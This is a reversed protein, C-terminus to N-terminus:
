AGQGLAPSSDSARSKDLRGRADMESRDEDAFNGRPTVTRRSSPMDEALDDKSAYNSTIANSFTRESKPHKEEEHDHADGHTGHTKAHKPEEEDRIAPTTELAKHADAMEKASMRGAFYGKGDQEKTQVLLGATRVASIASKDRGDVVQKIADKDGEKVKAALDMIIEADQEPVGLKVLGEQTKGALHQVNSTVFDYMGDHAEKRLAPIAKSKIGYATLIENPLLSAFMAKEKGHMHKLNDQIANEIDGPNDFKALFEEPTIMERTGLVPILPKLIDRAQKENAFKKSGKKGFSILKGDGILVYLAAPDLGAAIAEAAVAAAPELRKVLPAGLPNTQKGDRYWDHEKDQERAVQQCIDIIYQKLSVDQAYEDGMGRITIDDASKAAYSRDCTSSNGGCQNEIERRLHEVMKWSTIKAKLKDDGDHFSEKLGQSILSAPVLGGHLLAGARGEDNNHYPNKKYNEKGNDYEHRHYDIQDETLIQDSAAIKKNIEEERKADWKRKEKSAKHDKLGLGIMVALTPADALLLKMDNRWEQKAEELAQKMMMNTRPNTGTAEKIPAFTKYIESRAQSYRVYAQVLGIVTAASIIGWRVSNELVTAFVNQAKSKLGIGAAITKGFQYVKEGQDVLYGTGQTLGFGLLPRLGKPVEIGMWRVKGTKEDTKLEMTERLASINKQRIEQASMGQPSSYSNGGYYDGDSFNDNWGM